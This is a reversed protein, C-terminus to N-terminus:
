VVMTQNAGHLYDVDVSRMNLFQEADMKWFKKSIKNSSVGRYIHGDRSFYLQQSDTFVPEPGFNIEWSYGLMMAHIQVQKNLEPNDGIVVTIQKM